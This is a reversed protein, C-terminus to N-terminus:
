EEIIEQLAAEPTYGARFYYDLMAGPYDVHQARFLLGPRAHNLGECRQISLANVATCFEELSM